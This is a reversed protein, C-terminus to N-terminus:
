GTIETKAHIVIREFSQCLAKRETADPFLPAARRLHLRHKEPLRTHQRFLIFIMIVPQQLAFILEQAMLEAKRWHIIKHKLAQTGPGHVKGIEFHGLQRCEPYLVVGKEGCDQFRATGPFDLLIETNGRRVIPLRVVMEAIGRGPFLLRYTLIGQIDQQDIRNDRHKESIPEAVFLGFIALPGGTKQFANRRFLVANNGGEAMGADGDTM